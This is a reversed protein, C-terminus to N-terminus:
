KGDRSHAERTGLSCASRGKDTVMHAEVLGKNIGSIYGKWGVGANGFEPHAARVDPRALGTYGFGIIRGNNDTFVISKAIKNLATNWAWGQVRLGPLDSNTLMEVEDVYGECRQPPAAQYHKALPDGLWKSGEAAFISLHNRQLYQVAPIMAIPNYYVRSWIQQDYVPASIAAESESLYFAADRAYRIQTPQYLVIIIVIIAISAFEFVLLPRAAPWNKDLVTSLLFLICFWFL